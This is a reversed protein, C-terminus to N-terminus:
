QTCLVSLLSILEHKILFSTSCANEINYLVDKAFSVELGEQYHNQILNYFYNTNMNCFTTADLKFQSLIYNFSKSMHVVIM